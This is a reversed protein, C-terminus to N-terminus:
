NNYKRGSGGSRTEKILFYNHWFGYALMGLGIIGFVHFHQYYWEHWGTLFMIIGIIIDTLGACISAKITRKEANM